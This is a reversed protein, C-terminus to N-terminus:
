IFSIVLLTPIHFPLTKEIDFGFYFNLLSNELCIDCKGVFSHFHLLKLLSM